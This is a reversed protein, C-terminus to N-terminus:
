AGPVVKSMNSYTNLRYYRGSGLLSDTLAYRDMVGIRPSFDEQAIARNVSWLYPSYIVGGDQVTNGNYGVCSYDDTAYQDLYIKIDGNLTGIEAVSPNPGTVNTDIGTFMPRASQLATAVASSVVAFNGRGRRTSKSIKNSQHIISTVIQSIQEQSWRGDIYSSNSVATTTLDFQKAAEGGTGTVATTKIKAILERDLEALVEYQLTELVLRDIDIQHLASIDQSSELSWSAALKRTKAVIATQDLKIKAQPYTSGIQWAEAASTYVGTGSGSTSYTGSTGSTSGSFGSYAQINDWAMEVGTNGNSIDQYLVRLAFAIGVPFNMAQVPVIKQAFLAPFTRRVLAMTLPKYVSGHDLQSISSISNAFQSEALMEKDLNLTDHNELLISMTEQQAEPLNEVSMGKYKETNSWKKVLEKVDYKERM